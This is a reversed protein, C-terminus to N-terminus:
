FERRQETNENSNSKTPDTFNNNQNANGNGGFNNGQAGNGANDDTKLTLTGNVVQQQEENTLQLIIGKKGNLIKKRTPLKLKIMGGKVIPMISYSTKMDGAAGNRTIRYTLEDLAGNTNMSVMLAEIHIKGREWIKIDGENYEERTKGTKEDVDVEILQFTARITPKYGNQGLPDNGNVDNVYVKRDRGDIKVKYVPFWDLDNPNDGYLFRVDAYDGDGKLSFFGGSGSQGWKKLADKINM